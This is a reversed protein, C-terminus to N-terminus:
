PRAPGPPPPGPSDRRSLRSPRGESTSTSSSSWRRTRRSATRASRSATARTTSSSCNPPSTSARPRPSRNPRTSRSARTTPGTSSSCRRASATPATSRASPSSSSATRPSRATSPRATRAAGTPPTRSSRSSTRSASPTSARRGATPTSPSPRSSPSAATPALWDACAKLDVISDMRKEVDDLHTYERGYGASGRINPEFVAYGNALFYQTLSSFSPRRQSEPGGHVDVVVPAGGDPVEAPLSLYGPVSLGDFSGVHVLERARFTEPGIGATSAHTWRTTAEGDFVYANTNTTSGSASLAFTEGDPGWSVGGAVGEPLEPSATETLEGPGDIDAVTLETYGDVNRSYVLRDPDRHVSIGDVNWQEDEVVPELEGDLTLRALYLRDAGEDTTLYLGGEPGWSVGGYRVDGEHPTLHTREGSEVDLVYVDADFNHHVETMVLTSGDPSFGSVGVIGEGEFVLDAAEGTEDPSQVYIDFVDGRRRNSSFAFRDGDDSWGGWHHRYDPCQTLNTVAGDADLRHLQTNEDGGEDMGFVLHEATPSYSCFSVSEDYFSRQEPWAGPEDLTWVQSTGTTDMLFALRGSPSLSGGYAARVNLYREIDRM